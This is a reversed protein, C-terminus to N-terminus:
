RRAPLTAARLSSLELRLSIPFFNEEVDPEVRNGRSQGRSVEATVHSETIAPDEKSARYLSKLLQRSLLAIM